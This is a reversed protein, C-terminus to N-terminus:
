FATTPFGVKQWDEAHHATHVSRFDSGYITLEKPRQKSSFVNVTKGFGAVHVDPPMGGDFGGM